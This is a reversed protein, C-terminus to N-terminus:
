KLIIRYTYYQTTGSTAYYNFAVGEADDSLDTGSGSYTGGGITEYAPTGASVTPNGGFTVGFSVMTGGTPRDYDIIVTNEAFELTQIEEPPDQFDFVDGDIGEIECTEIGPAVEISLTNLGRKVTYEKIALGVNDGSSDQLVVGFVYDGVPLNAIVVQGDIFAELAEGEFLNLSYVKDKKLVIVYGEAGDEEADPSVFLGESSSQPLSIRVTTEGGVVGSCASLLIVAAMAALVILLKKMM